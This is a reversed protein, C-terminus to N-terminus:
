NLKFVDECVREGNENYIKISYTGAPLRIEPHNPDFRKAFLPIRLNSPNNFEEIQIFKGEDLIMDKCKLLCNSGGINYVYSPADTFYTENNEFLMFDYGRGQMYSSGILYPVNKVISLRTSIESEQGILYSQNITIPDIKLKDKLHAAMTKGQSVGVENAHAYGCYIIVKGKQLLNNNNIQNIINESQVRERMAYRSEGELREEDGNFEYGYVDYKNELATRILNGFTPDSTYLGINQDINKTANVTTYKNLTEFFITNYGNKQLIPLVRALQFRCQSWHHAENLIIIESNQSLSDIFDLYPHIKATSLISDLSINYSTFKSHEKMVQKNMSLFSFLTAASYHDYEVSSSILRDMETNLLAYNYNLSKRFYNIYDSTNDLRELRNESSNYNFTFDLHETLLAKEFATYNEGLRHEEGKKIELPVRGIFLYRIWKNAVLKHKEEFLYRYGNNVKEYSVHNSITDKIIIQEFKAEKLKTVFLKNDINQKYSQAIFAFRLEDFFEAYLLTKKSNKNTLNRLIVEKDYLKFRKCEIKSPNPYLEFVNKFHLELPIDLNKYADSGVNETRNEIIIYKPKCGVLYLSAIPYILIIISRAIRKM